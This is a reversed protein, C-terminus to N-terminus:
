AVAPGPRDARAAVQAAVWDNEAILAALDPAGLDPMAFFYATSLVLASAVNDADLVSVLQDADHPAFEQVSRVREAAAPSM